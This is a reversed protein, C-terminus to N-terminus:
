KSSASIQLLGGFRSLLSTTYRVNKKENKLDFYMALISPAALSISPSNEQQTNTTAEALLSLFFDIFEFM